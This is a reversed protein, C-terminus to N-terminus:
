PSISRPEMRATATRVTRGAPDPGLGDVIIAALASAMCAYGRDNHHVGDDSIFESYPHGDQQWL